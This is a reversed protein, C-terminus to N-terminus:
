ESVIAVDRNQCLFITLVFFSLRNARTISESLKIAIKYRAGLNFSTSNVANLSVKGLSPVGSNIKCFLTPSSATGCM